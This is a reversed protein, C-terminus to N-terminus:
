PAAPELGQLFLPVQRVISLVFGRLEGGEEAVLLGEPHFNPDLLVKTRFVSENIRDHTM